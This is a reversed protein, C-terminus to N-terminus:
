MGFLNLEMTRKLGRSESAFGPTDRPQSREREESKMVDIMGGLCLLGSGRPLVMVEREEGDAGNYAASTSNLNFVAVECERGADSRRGERGANTSASSGTPEAVEGRVRGREEGGTEGVREAWACVAAPAGMEGAGCAGGAGLAGTGVLPTVGGAEELAAATAPAPTHGKFLALHGVLKDKRSFSTGCSCLWRDRGCHKEHTKLDAVVSFRKAGCKSCALMKPCHTRRYHNKVCLMTKLPQFRAHRQNRKCGAYPCSFRKPRASAAAAAAAAADALHKDPRALAQPTKYQDGHGRMHMRLNADRKFGKGCVDCFHTHEALLEVPDM